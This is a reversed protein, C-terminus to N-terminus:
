WLILKGTMWGSPSAPFHLFFTVDVKGVHVEANFYENAANQVMPTLRSPTLVFWMVVALVAVCLALVSGLAVLTVKVTKKLEKEYRRFKM